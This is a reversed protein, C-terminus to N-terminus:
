SSYAKCFTRYTPSPADPETPTRWRANRWARWMDSSRDCTDRTGCAHCTDDRTDCAYHTDWTDHTDDPRYVVPARAFCGRGAGVDVDVDFHRRPFFRHHQAMHLIVLPTVPNYRMSESSARRMSVVDTLCELAGPTTATFGLAVCVHAM